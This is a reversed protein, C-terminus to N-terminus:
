EYFIEMNEHLAERHIRKDKELKAKVEDLLAKREEHRRKQNNNMALEYAQLAKGLSLLLNAYKDPREAKLEHMSDLEYMFEFVKYKLSESAIVTLNDRSEPPMTKIAEALFANRQAAEEQQEKLQKAYRGVSSRSPAAEGLRERLLEALQDITAGEGWLRKVLERLEEPLSELSSRQSM